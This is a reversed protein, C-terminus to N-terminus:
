YFLSNFLLVNLRQWNFSRKQVARLYLIGRFATEPHCGPARPVHVHDTHWLSPPPIRGWWRGGSRQLSGWLRKSIPVDRAPCWSVMGWEKVCLTTVCQFLNGLSATSSGDKSAPHPEPCGPRSTPSGACLLPTSVRHDNHDKEVWAM